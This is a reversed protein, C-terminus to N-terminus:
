ELASTKVIVAENQRPMRTGVRRPLIDNVFMFILMENLDCM